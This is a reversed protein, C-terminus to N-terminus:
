DLPEPTVDKFSGEKKITSTHTTEHEVKKESITVEETTACSSFSSFFTILIMFVFYRM